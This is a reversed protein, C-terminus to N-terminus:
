AWDMIVHKAKFFAGIKDFASSLPKILRPSPKEFMKIKIKMTEGAFKMEWTGHALGDVLVSALANGGTTGIKGYIRSQMDPSVFRGRGDPAYGMLYCDWVPLLAISDTATKKFTDFDKSDKKLLFYGNDADATELSSIASKARAVSVGAWWQFDKIRAPGFARLYEEALWALAKDSDARAFKKGVWNQTAVYTLRNAKLNDAGIRLLCGEYAMRNLVLKTPTVSKVVAGPLGLTTEIEDPYKPQQAFDIVRAKWVTYDAESVAGYRKRWYPDDPPPVTASLALHATQTPLMFISLRMAPLRWASRKEELQFFARDNFSKLRAFLSLPASPHSSYVAIVKKLVDLASTGSKDLLQRHYSWHRFKELDPM